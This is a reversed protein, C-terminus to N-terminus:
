FLIVSFNVWFIKVIRASLKENTTESIDYGKQNMPLKKKTPEYQM